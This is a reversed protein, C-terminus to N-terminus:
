YGPKQVLKLAESLTHRHCIASILHIQQSTDVAGFGLFPRVNSLAESASIKDNLQENKNVGSTSM